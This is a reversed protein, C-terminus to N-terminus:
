DGEYYVSDGNFIIPDNLYTLIEGRNLAIRYIIGGVKLYLRKRSSGNFFLFGGERVDKAKPTSTTVTFDENLELERLRKEM